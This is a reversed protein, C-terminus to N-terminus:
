LRSVLREIVAQPRLEAEFWGRAGAELRHRYEDDALIKEVGSRIADVDDEVFHIHEGHVLPAPLDRGLPTSVIAKGLALYEGLKWGLCGHVAPSNFAVGSSRLSALYDALDVRTERLGGEFRIGQLGQVAQLFRLRPADAEPHKPAWPRAAFFVYSPDSVAPEYSALPLRTLAQFRAEAVKDRLDAGARAAQLAVSYARPLAWLRVGFLPGVPVVQNRLAGEPDVNVQGYADAWSAIVPDGRAHDGAAVYIRRGGITFAMGRAHPAIDPLDLRGFRFARGDSREALGQLIWTYYSLRLDPHM